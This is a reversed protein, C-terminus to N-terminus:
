FILNVNKLSIMLVCCITWVKSVFCHIKDGYQIGRDKQKLVYKEESLPLLAQIEHDGVSVLYGINAMASTIQVIVEQGPQLLSVNQPLKVTEKSLYNSKKIVTALTSLFRRRMREAV